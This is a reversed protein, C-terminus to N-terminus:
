VCSDSARLSARVRVCVLACVCVSACLSLSLGAGVGGGVARRGGMGGRGGWCPVVCGSGGGASVHAPVGDHGPGVGLVTMVKCIKLSLSCNNLSLSKILSACRGFRYKLKEFVIKKSEATKMLFFFLPLDVTTFFHCRHLFVCVGYEFSENDVKCDVYVLSRIPPLATGM